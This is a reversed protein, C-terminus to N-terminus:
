YPVIETPLLNKLNLENNKYMDILYYIDYNCYSTILTTHWRGNKFTILEILSCDDDSLIFKITTNLEYFVKIIKGM